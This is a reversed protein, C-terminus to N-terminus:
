ARFLPAVGRTSALLQKQEGADMPKLGAALDLAINYIRENGPPILSTVGQALTFRMADRAREVDVIPRYWTKKVTREEDKDWPTYALSKLALVAVGKTRAKPVVKPGFGGQEWCVYNVPYLASDFNFRELLALAAQESHASFGLYRVKGQERAKIFAEMAGGPAFIRDVDEMRTVAHHQYLDFHDVGIRRLSIDLEEEAGAADRKQTKCALFVQDRYPKLAIGLKEEAEGNWYSPAVDYYNVGRDFSRAVENNGDKQPRGCLVIGGFGIISLDIGDRYARQPIPKDRNSAVAAEVASWYHATLGLGAAAGTKTIFDRRKM